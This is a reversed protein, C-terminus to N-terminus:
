KRNRRFLWAIFRFPATIITVLINALSPVLALLVLAVLVMAIIKIWNPIEFDKTTNIPPSFDNILDRPAMVVPIVTLVDEKEFTVDIIDFDLYVTEQAFYANTDSTMTPGIDGLVYTLKTEIVEWAKYDDIAFRFLFVSCDNEAAYDYFNRFESYDSPTIYLVDCTDLYNSQFDDASVQHIAEIGDFVESSVVKDAGWGFVKHWFSESLVESTLSYKDDAYITIDTMESDVNAFLRNSYKGLILEDYGYKEAYESMWDKVIDSSLTYTDADGSSSYFCYHLTDLEDVEFVDDNDYSNYGLSYYVVSTSLLSNSYGDNSVLTWMIDNNQADRLGINISVHDLITRYADQNGTVFIYDTLAELWNAHIAYMSGYEELIDNPVSFYVSTLCDQTYDNKGNTGEPRYYTSKVDLSLTVMEKVECSLTSETNNDGFGKAYGKWIYTNSIPSDKVDYGSNFRLQLSAIDYRRFGFEKNYNRQTNLFMASNSIKFKYFRNNETKDLFELLANEYRSAKGVGDYAVAINVSNDLDVAIAKQTPNYVYIYLSYYDTLSATDSYCYEQFSMIGYNGLLNYPYLLLNVDLLDDDISTKDLDVVETTIEDDAAYVTVFSGHIFVLVLM